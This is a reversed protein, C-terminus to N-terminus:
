PPVVPTGDWHGSRYSQRIAFIGLHSGHDPTQPRAEPSAASVETPVIGECFSVTGDSLEELYSAGFILRKIERCATEARSIAGLGVLGQFFDPNYKLM